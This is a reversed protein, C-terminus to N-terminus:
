IMLNGNAFVNNPDVYEKVARMMGLGVGSVSQKLWRKRIKGIGHHHSVSGGCALIEDRAAAELEEYVHIPDPLGRTNIGMYFYICAGVDYTQTVRYSIFPQYPLGHVEAERLIRDRVNRCLDLVRDWPVSTEFSEAFVGYDFALDRIYAIVYTLLYGRKGNEEGASLGGYKNGLFMLKKELSEVDEKKGELLLTVVCMRTIDFGKVRTVYFKKLVDVFPTLLSEAEPKLAQGFIFQENDMLRVSAPKLAQKAVERMYSVGADFEPFIISGYRKYEPLPHIMLTVETIVGLTGESGLIFHHIDPGCSIRPVQCNKEVVGQSTVMRVHVLMDEINGYINRKMGSARTAVWGGLSSFEASDPEHGTCFGYEALKSELDKGLIGAEIHATHNKKDVWLIKNMQTTDLSVIMRREEEPCELAGSVSTGGGFPIIVVNHKNAMKVVEVVDDHSTPWVVLDPIRNFTGERLMFIERMTQGHSRFLRDQPEDTYSINVIKLDELFDKNTLPTPLVENKIEAQSKCYYDKSVGLVTEAWLQFLPLKKNGLPYRTGTFHIVNQDLDAVFQSDKYGWGNWKVVEQRRKPVNPEEEGHKDRPRDRMKNSGNIHRYITSIREAAM